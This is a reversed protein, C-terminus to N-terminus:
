TGYSHLGAFLRSLNVWLLTIVIVTIGAIAWISNIRRYKKGFMYRFCLYRAHIEAVCLAGFEQLVITDYLLNNALSSLQATEPCPQGASSSVWTLPLSEVITANPVTQV